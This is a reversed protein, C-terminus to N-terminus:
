KPCLGPPLSYIYVRAEPKRLLSPFSSNALDTVMYLTGSTKHIYELLSLVATVVQKFKCYDVMLKRYRDAKQLLWNTFISIHHPHDVILDRLTVSIEAM